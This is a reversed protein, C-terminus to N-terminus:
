LKKLLKLLKYYYFNNKLAQIYIVITEFNRKGCDNGKREFFNNFFGKKRSRFCVVAKFEHVLM